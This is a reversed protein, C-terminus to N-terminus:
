GVVVAMPLHFERAIDIELHVVKGTKEKALDPTNL